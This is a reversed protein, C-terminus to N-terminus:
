GKKDFSRLAATAIQSLRAIRLARDIRGQREKSCYPKLANLLTIERQDVRGAQRIVELMPGMDDPLGAPEAPAEGDEQPPAAGLSRAISLIQAMQEPNGLVQNIKGELDDM